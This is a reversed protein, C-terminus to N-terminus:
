KSIVKLLINKYKKQALNIKAYLIILKLAIFPIVMKSVIM